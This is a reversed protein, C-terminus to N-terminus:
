KDDSREIENLMARQKALEELFAVEGTALYSDLQLIVPYDKLLLDDEDPLWRNTMAYSVLGVLVFALGCAGLMAFQTSRLYWTQSTIPIRQNDLKATAVTRETFDNPAKPRPLLDLMDYTRALVDVDNRAVESVTLISEIRRTSEEDLEGDLYAPLNDRDEASLRALKAM